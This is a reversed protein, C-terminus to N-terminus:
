GAPRTPPPRKLPTGLAALERPVFGPRPTALNFWQVIGDVGRFGEQSATGGKASHKDFSTAARMTNVGPAIIQSDSPMEREPSAGPSPPPAFSPTTLGRAMARNSQSSPVPSLSRTRAPSANTWASAPSASAEQPFWQLLVPKEEAEAKTGPSGSNPGPRMPPPFYQQPDPREYNPDQREDMDTYSLASGPLSIRGSLGSPFSRPPLPPAISSPGSNFTAPSNSDVPGPPSNSTIPIQQLTGPRSNTASTIWSAGEESDMSSHTGLTAWAPCDGLTMGVPLSRVGGAHAKAVPLDLMPVRGAIHPSAGPYRRQAPLSLSRNMPQFGGAVVEPNAQSPRPPGYNATTRSPMKFDDNARSTHSQVWSQDKSAEQQVRERLVLNTILLVLGLIVALLTVLMFLIEFSPKTREAIGFGALGLDEAEIM